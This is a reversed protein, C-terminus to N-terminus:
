RVARYPLGSMKDALSRITTYRYMDNLRLGSFREKLKSFVRFIILSNAGLDFFNTDLDIADVTLAMCFETELYEEIIRDPRQRVLPVSREADYIKSLSLLEKRDVKGNQTLPMQELFIFKAPIMYRPLRKALGNKIESVTLKANKAPVLCAVLESSKTEHEFVLIAASQVGPLVGLAGEIEEIEIRFGRIKIQFDRRGIFEINGDFRVRGMDGTRYVRTGQLSGIPNPMFKEATLGPNNYYGRAVGMGELVIEGVTGVPALRLQEDLVYAATGDIPRGIPMGPGREDLVNCFISYVTDETPGYFNYLKEVHGLARIAQCIAASVKEGGLNITRVSKPIEGANLLEAAASPAASLLTASQSSEHESLHLVDECVVICGGRSLPGFIEFISMDFSVSATWPVVSMEDISFTNRAWSLFSYANRHEIAVGKPRGTSGSTYIIYALAEVGHLHAQLDADGPFQAAASYQVLRIDGLSLETTSEDDVLAVGAKSNAIITRLREEPYKKDLPVFAAGAKLVAMLMIITEATRSGFVVVRDEGAVGISNLYCAINRAIRDIERYSYAVAGDILATVEPTEAVQAEFFDQLYGTPAEGDSFRSVNALLFRREFDGVIDIRDIIAEHEALCAALVLEFRDAIFKVRNAAAERTREVFRISSTANGIRVSLAIPFPTRSFSPVEVIDGVGTLSQVIGTFEHSEFSIISDFPKQGPNREACRLIQDLGVCGEVQLAYQASNIAKAIEAIKSVPHVSVRVPVLNVLMGVMQDASEYDRHASILGFIVDTQGTSLKLVVTWVAQILSALTTGHQLAKKRLAETQAPPLVREDMHYRYQEVGEDEGVSVQGMLKTDGIGTLTQRWFDPSSCACQQKHWGYIQALSIAGAAEGVIGDLEENYFRVFESLLIARSWGDIILHHYTWIFGLRGDGLEMISIRMLPANTLEFGALRDGEMARRIAEDAQGAVAHLGKIRLIRFQVEPLVVQAPHGAEDWVFITRLAEHRYILRHWVREAIAVDIGGRATFAFQEIYLDRADSSELELLIGEQVPLLPTLNGHNIVSSYKRNDFIM